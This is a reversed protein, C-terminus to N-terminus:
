RAEGGRKSTAHQDARIGVSAYKDDASMV